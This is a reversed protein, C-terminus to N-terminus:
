CKSYFITLMIFFNIRYQMQVHQVIKELIIFYFIFYIMHCPILTNIDNTRSFLVLIFRYNIHVRTM